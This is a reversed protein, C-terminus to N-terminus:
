AVGRRRELALNREDGSCAAPKAAGEGFTERAQTGIDRDVAHAFVARRFIALPRRQGRDRLRHRRRVADAGDADEAIESIAGVDRPHDLGRRLLQARDVNEDVIGAAVDCGLAALGIRVIGDTDALLIHARHEIASSLV